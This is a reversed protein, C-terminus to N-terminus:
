EGSRTRRLVKAWLSFQPVAILCVSVAIAEFLCSVLGFHAVAANSSIALPALSGILALPPLLAARFASGPPRGGDGAERARLVLMVASALCMAFGTMAAALSALDLIGGSSVVVAAVLCTALGAPLLAVIWDIVNRLVLLLIAAAVAFALLLARGTEHHMIENRALQVIPRGAAMPSLKRLALAFALPGAAPAPLVEIRWIGDAAVFRQRLAPDLDALGPTDLRALRVAAASLEALGSFLRNQLALVNAAAPAKPNAYLVVAHRLRQVAKRLDPATAPDDSIQQLGTEIGLFLSALTPGDPLPRPPAAPMTLLGDLQQLSRLKRGADIPLYQEVFRASGVQPLAALQAVLRAAADGPPSLLHVANLAVPSDLPALPAHGGGADGFRLNFVFVSCFASAAVLVLVLMQLTNHANSGLEEAATADLWHVDVVEARDFAALMAPVLTITVALAVAIGAGAFWALHGLSPLNRLNWSAWFVAAVGALGLLIPGRRQAALMVAVQCDSGRSRSEAHALVLVLSFLLAPALTAAGFSWGVADLAPAIVAVGAATLSVSVLGTAAVAALYALRGLGMLLITFTLLAALVAPVILDRVPDAPAAEADAPMYWTLGPLRATAAAAFAGAERLRGPRPSAMVFWQKDAIRSSIGALETWDVSRPRRNLEGEISASAALLLGSLGPPSRGEAVARGIEDILAKLGSIDPSAALAQFLPQMQLAQIVGADVDAAKRFLIGYKDYFDGTGPVFAQTFLDGRKTLADKVRLALDRAAAPDDLEIRAVFSDDIGPFQRDLETKAALTLADLAIPPPLGPDIQLNLAAFGAAALGVLTLLVLVAGNHRACLRAWRAFVNPRLRARTDPKPQPRGSWHPQEWEDM